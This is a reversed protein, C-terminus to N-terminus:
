RNSNLFAALGLGIKTAYGEAINLAVSPAADNGASIDGVGLYGVTAVNGLGAVTVMGFYVGAGKVLAVLLNLGM